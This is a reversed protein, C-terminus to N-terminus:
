LSLTHINQKFSSFLGKAVPPLSELASSLSAQKLRNNETEVAQVKSELIHIAEELEDSIEKQISTSM